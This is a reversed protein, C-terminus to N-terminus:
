RPGTCIIQAAGDTNAAGTTHIVFSWSTTSPWTGSICEYGGGGNATANCNCIPASSWTGSNFNITYSGSGTRTVSAIGSTNRYLTCPSSTCNSAESGGGFAAREVTENTLSQAEWGDIPINVAQISCIVNDCVSTGLAKGIPTVSGSGFVDNNSFTIYTVSRELTVFGGHSNVAGEGRGYFGAVEVTTSVIKTSSTTLGSPLSIRAEVGTATGATFKGKIQLTDGVRRWWFEQTSVTGFGTFTPTYSAWETQITSGCNVWSLNGSGDTKLCQNAAGDDVPLTLTYSSTPVGSQITTTNTGVGPDELILSILSKIAKTASVIGTGHPELSINGNNGTTSITLVPNGASNHKINYAWLDKWEISDSGLDDTNDTDSILSTNIAVSALNDLATTAGGGGCSAWSLVGSGNNQLCQSGSAQASPWTLSYSTTTAAPYQTLIGSTDGHMKFSGDQDITVRTKRATAGNATTTLVLSTGKALDTHNETALAAITSTASSAYGTSGYGAYSIAGISDGSQVASESGISGRAKRLILVSPNTAVSNISDVRIATSGTGVLHLPSIPSTTGIGVRNNTDDYYLDSEGGFVGGNNYQIHGDSGAPSTAVTTWSLVGSGNTTLAQGSTGDDVPMTLFYPASLGPSQLTIKNSSTSDQLIFKNAKLESADAECLSCIVFIILILFKMNGRM